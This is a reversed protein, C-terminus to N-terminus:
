GKGIGLVVMLALFIGDPKYRSELVSYTQRYPVIPDIRTVFTDDKHKPIM